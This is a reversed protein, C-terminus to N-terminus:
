FLCFFFKLRNCILNIKRVFCHSKVRIRYLLLLIAYLDKCMYWIANPKANAPELANKLDLKYCPEISSYVEVEYIGISYGKLIKFSLSKIRDNIDVMINIKYCEKLEFDKLWGTDTKIQIKNIISDPHQYIQIFKVSQPRDFLLTIEPKADIVSPRWLKSNSPSIYKTNSTNGDIDIIKFDNLYGGNGSTVIIKANLALNDTRRIWYVNDANAIRGFKAYAYQTKHACLAKYLKSKWFKVPILDPNTYIRMRESWLHPICLNENEINKIFPRTYPNDIDYYDNAGKYVGLYAFKKLVIPYYNIEKKLLDGLVEDFLLSAVSHDLHGDVDICIILEPHIAVLLTKIDEKLNSRKYTAQECYIQYHYSQIEGINYTQTNGANSLHIDDDEYIHGNVFSDGYGLFCIHQYGFIKKAKQAEKVRKKSLKPNYDGYTTFAVTIDYDNDLLQDFIGGAVNIEDDPHPVIILCRKM